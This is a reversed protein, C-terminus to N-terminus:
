PCAIIDYGTPTGDSFYGTAPHCQPPIRVCGLKTCAIQGTAQRVHHKAHKTAASQLVTAAPGSPQASAPLATLAIIAPLACAFLAYRM